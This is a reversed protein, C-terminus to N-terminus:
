LHSFLHSGDCTRNGLPLMERCFGVTVHHHECARKVRSLLRKREEDPLYRAGRRRFGRVFYLDRIEEAEKPFCEAFRRWGDPRPKFTSSTVHKAGASVAAEVIEEVEDETLLPFVPDLRLTVPIGERSLEAMAQLRRESPPANPELKRRVRERLTTITFSVICETERLIDIDRRVLDSKTIIQVRVRKRRFLDL